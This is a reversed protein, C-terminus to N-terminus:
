KFFIISNEEKKVLMGKLNYTNLSDNQIFNILKKIKKSRLNKSNMYFCKYLMKVIKESILTHIGRFELYNFIIKKSNIKLLNKAFIEYIMLKYLPLKKNVTIFDNEIKLKSDNNVNKLYDRIIARSYNFNTNSPDNIFDIENSKNYKLIQKKSYNLLPRIINIKNYIINENISTLGEFDSGAIKRNLYTELNDDKHHGVFLHLINNKQCFKTLLEYRNTRAESMNNKKLKSKNVKLIKSIIKTKKLLNFVRKAENSSENRIKHDVILAILKGKKSKIWTNLISVLAMSDPGGSVAVCICPNNEFYFNKNLYKEFNLQSLKM